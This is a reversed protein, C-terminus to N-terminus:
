DIESLDIRCQRFPRDNAIRVKERRFLKFAASALGNRLCVHVTKGLDNKAEQRTHKRKLLRYPDFL